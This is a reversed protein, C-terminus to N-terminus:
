RLLTLSGQYKTGNIELVYFYTGSVCEEGTFTRGDWTHHNEVSEFLLEGWRNYISINSCQELRQGLQIDFVDNIGDGDPTFVNPINGNFYDDFALVNQTQSSSDRCSGNNSAVLTITHVGNFSMPVQVDYDTSFRSGDVYWLYNDANSSRNNTVALAQDCNAHVVVDFDAIVANNIFVTASTSDKCGNQDTVVVQYSTTSSPRAVPNAITDNSLNTSPTWLYTYPATGRQKTVKLQSSDGNCEIDEATVSFGYIVVETSDSASCNSVTDVVLMYYTRNQTFTTIPNPSSPNNLVEPSSWSYRGTAPGSPNGGLQISTVTDTCIIFPGGADATPSSNMTIILSDSGQCGKNDTGMVVYKITSDITAVPNAIQHDNLGASPTWTYNVAGTAQLQILDGKCASTDVGADVNLRTTVDIEVQATDQCNNGGTITVTYVTSTSPFVFPNAIFPSSINTAPSWSYSTIGGTTSTTDIQISDGACIEYRPQTFTITPKPKVTVMVSDRGICSGNTATVMYQRDTSTFTRPNASNANDLDAIPTWSFTTNFLPSTPNGGLAVTDPFCIDLNPGAETPVTDDVEVFISDINDCGNLNVIAVRYTTNSSPFVRVSDVTNNPLITSNPTWTYSAAGKTATMTLTDGLCLFVSDFPINIEPRPNVNLTLTDSAMCFNGDTGFVIYMMTDSPSVRHTPGNPLSNPVWSYTAAGTATLTATDGLCIPNRSSTLNVVPVTDVTILVSDTFTCNASTTVQVKYRVAGTTAGTVKPNAITTSNLNTAPSWSFTSGVPGTPSGGIILTDGQCISSDLGADITNQSHVTVLVSDVSPCTGGATDTVTVFFKTTSTINTMPNAINPNSVSGAPSWLYQVGGSANLQVQNGECITTDNSVTVNQNQQVTVTVSDVVKCLGTTDTVTIIYTTTKTPFARPNQVTDASLSSSPSWKIGFGAPATPLAGTSGLTTTDGLCISRDAGPRVDFTSVFVPLDVPPSVCGFKNTAFVQM